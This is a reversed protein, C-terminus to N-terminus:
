LRSLFLCYTKKNLGTFFLSHVNKKHAQFVLPNYRHEGGGPLSSIKKTFEFDRTSALPTSTPWLVVSGSYIASESVRERKGRVRWKRRRNSAHTKTKLDIWLQNSINDFSKWFTNKFKILTWNVGRKSQWISIVVVESCYLHMVLILLKVFDM